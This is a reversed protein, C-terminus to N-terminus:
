ELLLSCVLYMPSQLESTHEESRELLQRSVSRADQTFKARLAPSAFAKPTPTRHTRADSQDSPKRHACHILDPRLNWDRCFKVDIELFARQPRNPIETKLKNPLLIERDESRLGCWPTRRRNQSEKRMWAAALTIPKRKRPVRPSTLSCKTTRARRARPATSSQWRRTTDSCRKCARRNRPSCNYKPTSCMWNFERVPM